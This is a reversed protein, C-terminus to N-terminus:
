ENSLIIKNNIRLDIIKKDFNQDKLLLEAKNILKFVNNRPLKIIRDNNFIIDWRGSPFFILFKIESLDFSTKKLLNLFKNVTKINVNGQIMLIELNKTDDQFLKGNEGIFFIENNYIIKALHQTRILEIKLKNPYVKNIKFSDLIPYNELYNSIENKNLKLINQNILNNLEYALSNDNNELNVIKFNKEFFGKINFNYITSLFILLFFYIYIKKKKSIQQLMM